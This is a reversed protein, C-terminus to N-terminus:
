SNIVQLLGINKNSLLVQGLYGHLNTSCYYVFLVLTQFLNDKGSHVAWTEPPNGCVVEFHPPFNPRLHIAVQSKVREPNDGFVFYKNTFPKGGSAQDEPLLSDMFTCFLHMLIHSDTLLEPTWERDKWNRGGNWRFNKMFSGESLDKIRQVVYERSTSNRVKIFKELRHREKIIENQPDTNQQVPGSFASTFSTFSSIPATSSQWLPANIQPLNPSNMLHGSKEVSEMRHVLPKLVRFVLWARM